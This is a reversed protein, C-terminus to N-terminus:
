RLARAAAYARASSEDGALEILEADITARRPDDEGLAAHLAIRLDLDRPHARSAVWLRATTSATPAAHHEALAALADADPARGRPALQARQLVM